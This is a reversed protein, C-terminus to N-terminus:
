VGVVALAGEGQKTAEDLARATKNSSVVISNMAILMKDFKQNLRQVEAGTSDQSRAETSSGDYGVARAIGPNTRAFEDIEQQSGFSALRKMQRSLELDIGSSIPALYDLGISTLNDYLEQIDQSTKVMQLHWENESLENSITIGGLAFGKKDFDSGMPNFGTGKPLLANTNEELAERLRTSADTLSENASIANSTVLANQELITAIESASSAGSLRAMVDPTLGEIHAVLQKAYLNAMYAVDTQTTRGGIGMFTGDTGAIGDIGVGSLTARSMDVFGGAANALSVLYADLQRAQNIVSESESRDAGRAFGTPKFGSAFSPVQFLNAPDAGPTPGVLMGANSRRYNDPDKWFGQSSGYLLAAAAWTLPNSALAGITAGMGGGAGIAGGIGAASAPLNLAAAQAATLVQTGTLAGFASGALSGAIGNFAGGAIGGLAASTGTVNLPANIGLAMLAKVALWEAVIRKITEVAADGIRKWASGGNDAIDIFTEALYDRTSEWQRQAAQAAEEQARQVIRSNEEAQRTKEADAEAAAKIAAEQDYLAGALDIITDRYQISVREGLKQTENFIANERETLGLATIQNTLTRILDQAENTQKETEKLVDNLAEQLEKEEETLARTLSIVNKIPGVFGTTRYTMLDTESSVVSMAAALLKEKEALEKAVRNAARNADSNIHQFRTYDELEVKLRIIDSELGQISLGLTGNDKQAEFANIAAQNQTKELENYARVLLYIGAAATAAAGVPGGILMFGRQAGATAAALAVQGAAATASVGSMRALAAQYAIAQVTSAAFAIGSSAISIALRTGIVVALAEAATKIADLMKEFDDSQAFEVARESYESLAPLLSNVFSVGLSSVSGQLRELNDNFIEAQAASEETVPNLRQGEAVLEALGASGENLMPILELGSRGFLKTALATKLAGDEMAAFQDAVEIMVSDASKLAGNTEYINIGLAQFNRQSEKLGNNADFMQTSVTKLAKEVSEISSGSLSAAHDLGALSTVSVNVRQSMKALEDQANIAGTIMRGFYNVSLGIGLVGLAKQAVSVAKNINNMTSDVASGAKHMDSALRAVNAMMEIELTGAKM